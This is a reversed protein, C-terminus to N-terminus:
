PTLKLHSEYYALLNRIGETVHKCSLTAGSINTIDVGVELVDRVTKNKFEERWQPNTVQNGKTERYDLIEVQKIAGNTFIALSYTIYEHKGVVDDVFFYGLLGSQNTARWVRLSLKESTPLPTFLAANPFMLHQAENIDLYHTAYALPAYLAVTPLVSLWFVPRQSFFMM